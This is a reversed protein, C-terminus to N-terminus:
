PQISPPQQPEDDLYTPCCVYDLGMLWFRMVHIDHMYGDKLLIKAFCVGISMVRGEYDKGDERFRVIQGIQLEWPQCRTLTSFFMSIPLALIPTFMWNNALLSGIEKGYLHLLVGVGILMLVAGVRRMALMLADRRKLASSTKSERRTFYDEWYQALTNNAAAIALKYAQGKLGRPLIGTPEGCRSYVLLYGVLFALVGILTLVVKPNIQAARMLSAPVSPNIILGCCMALTGFMIVLIAGAFAVIFKELM